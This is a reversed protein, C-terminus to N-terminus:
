IREGVTCTKVCEAHAMKTNAWQPSSKAPCACLCPECFCGSVLCNEPWVAHTPASRLNDLHQVMIGAKSMSLYDLVTLVHKIFSQRSTTLAYMYKWSCQVHVAQEPLVTLSNMAGSGSPPSQGNFKSWIRSTACWVRCHTHKKLVLTGFVSKHGNSPDM